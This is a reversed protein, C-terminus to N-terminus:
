HLLLRGSDRSVSAWPANHTRDDCVPLSPGAGRGTVGRPRHLQPCSAVARPLLLPGPGQSHPTLFLRGLGRPCGPPPLPRGSWASQPPMCAALSRQACPRPTDLCVPRVPGPPVRLGPHPPTVSVRPPRLPAPAHRPGCRSLCPLGSAGSASVSVGGRVSVSGRVSVGGRVSAVGSGLVQCRACRGGGGGVGLHWPM